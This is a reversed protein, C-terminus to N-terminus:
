WFVNWSFNVGLCIGCKWNESYFSRLVMVLLVKGVVVSELNWVGIVIELVVVLRDSNLVLWIVLFRDILRLMLIMGCNRILLLFM